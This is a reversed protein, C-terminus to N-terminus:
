MSNLLSHPDPVNPARQIVAANVAKLDQVMRWKTSPAAKKVPFIPTNCPSEHCPILVGAKLYETIVPRIGDIADQKLAYQKIRPQYEGKPRIQVPPCDTLAGM